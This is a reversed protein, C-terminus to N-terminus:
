KGIWGRSNPITFISRLTKAVVDMIDEMRGREHKDDAEAFPVAGIPWLVASGIFAILTQRIFSWHKFM